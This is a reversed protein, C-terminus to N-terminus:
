KGQLQLCAADLARKLVPSNDIDEQTYGLADLTDATDKTYSYEHNALEYLFMDTAFQAGTEPNDIAAQTEQQIAEALERYDKAKAKLLFGGTSGLRVLDKEKGATLGLKEMGEEFQDNSFAFFAYKGLFSDVRKQHDEKLEAYLNM